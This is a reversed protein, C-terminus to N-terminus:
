VTTFNGLNRKLTNQSNLIIKNQKGYNVIKDSKM